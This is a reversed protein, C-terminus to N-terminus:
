QLSVAHTQWRIETASGSRLLKSKRTKWILSKQTSLFPEMQVKQSVAMWAGSLLAKMNVYKKWSFTGVKMIKKNSQVGIKTKCWALRPFHKFFKELWPLIFHSYFYSRFFSLLIQCPFWFYLHIHFKGLRCELLHITKHYLHVKMPSFQFVTHESQMHYGQHHFAECLPFEPM